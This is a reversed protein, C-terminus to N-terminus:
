PREGQCRQGPWQGVLRRALVHQSIGNEHMGEVIGQGLATWNGRYIGHCDHNHLADLTVQMFEGPLIPFTFSCRSCGVLPSFAQPGAIADCARIDDLTCCGPCLEPVPGAEAETGM